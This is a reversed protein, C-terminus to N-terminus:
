SGSLMRLGLGALLLVSAIPGLLKGLRLSRTPARHLAALTEADARWLQARLVISWAVLAAGVIILVNSILMM